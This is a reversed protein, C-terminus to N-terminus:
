GKAKSPYDAEWNQAKWTGFDSRKWSVKFQYECKVCQRYITRRDGYKLVKTIKTDGQCNPCNM